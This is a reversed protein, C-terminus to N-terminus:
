KYNNNRDYLDNHEKPPEAFRALLLLIVLVIVVIMCLLEM